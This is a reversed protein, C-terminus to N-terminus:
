IRREKMYNVQPKTNFESLNHPNYAPAPRIQRVFDKQGFNLDDDRFVPDKPNQYPDEKPKKVGGKVETMQAHAFNLKTDLITAVKFKTVFGEREKMVTWPTKKAQILSMTGALWLNSRDKGQLDLLRQERITQSEIKRQLEENFFDNSDNKFPQESTPIYKFIPNERDSKWNPVM